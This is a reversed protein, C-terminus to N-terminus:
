ACSAGGEPSHIPEAGAEEDLIDMLEINYKALKGRATEVIDDASHLLYDLTTCDRESMTTEGGSGTAHDELLKSAAMLLCDLKDFAETASAIM